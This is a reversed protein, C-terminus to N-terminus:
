LELRTIRLWDIKAWVELGMKERFKGVAYLMSGEFDQPRIKMGSFSASIRWHEPTPVVAVNSVTAPNVTVAPLIPM